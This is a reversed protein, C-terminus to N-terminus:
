LEENGYELQIDWKDGIVVGPNRIVLLLREVMYFFEMETKKGSRDTLIIKSPKVKLGCVVVRELKSGITAASDRKEHLDDVVLRYNTFSIAYYEFAGDTRYRMSHLDDSYLHGAATQDDSLFVLFTYPDFRGLYSSRRVREKRPVIQGGRYFVPMTSLTVPLSVSQGGQYQKWGSHLYWLAPPLYVDVSTAGADTVPKVLIAPGVMFQDDINFNHADSPFHFWM